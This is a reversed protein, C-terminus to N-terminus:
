TESIKAVSKKKNMVKTLSINKEFENSFSTSHQTYDRPTKSIQNKSTKIHINYCYEQNM